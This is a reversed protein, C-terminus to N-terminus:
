AARLTIGAHPASHIRKIALAQKHADKRDAFDGLPDRKELFPLVLARQLNPQLRQLAMITVPQKRDIKFGASDPALECSGGLSEPSGHRSTVPKDSGRGPPM